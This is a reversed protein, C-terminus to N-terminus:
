IVAGKEGFDRNRRGTNSSASTAARSGAGALTAGDDGEFTMVPVIGGSGARECEGHDHSGPM